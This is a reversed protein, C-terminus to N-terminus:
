KQETPLSHEWPYADVIADMNIVMGNPAPEVEDLKGTKLADHFRGSSPIWSASTLTIFKGDIRKIEGIQHFTVCRFFWRQGVQFPESDDLAVQLIQELLQNKNMNM